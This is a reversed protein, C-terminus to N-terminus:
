LYCARSLSSNSLCGHRHTSTKCWYVNESKYLSVSLLQTTEVRQLLDPVGGHGFSAIMCIIKRPSLRLYVPSPICKPLKRAAKNPLSLLRSQSKLSFLSQM